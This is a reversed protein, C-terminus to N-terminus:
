VLSEKKLAVHSFVKKKKKKIYTFICYIQRIVYVEYQNSKFM